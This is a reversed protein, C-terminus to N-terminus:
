EPYPIPVNANVVENAGKNLAEVLRVMTLTHGNFVGAIANEAAIVQAATRCLMRGLQRFSANSFTVAATQASRQGKVRKVTTLYSHTLWRTLDQVATATQAKPVSKMYAEAFEHCWRDDLKKTAQLQWVRATIRIAAEPNKMQLARGFDAASVKNFQEATKQM